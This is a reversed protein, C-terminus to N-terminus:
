GPIRVLLIPQHVQHALHRAASGGSFGAFLQVALQVSQAGGQVNFGIGIRHTQLTVDQGPVQIVVKAM